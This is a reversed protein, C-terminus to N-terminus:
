IYIMKSLRQGIDKLDQKVDNGLQNRNLYLYQLSTNTQLGKGIAIAGENGIQNGSLDLNLLSTNTQLAKGIAKAGENGIQNDDLNLFQLSTNTQLTKGIAKAGEDGIQNEGLSLYQSKSPGQLQTIILFDQINYVHKKNLKESIKNLSKDDYYILNNVLLSKTSLISVVGDPLIDLFYNFTFINLLDM